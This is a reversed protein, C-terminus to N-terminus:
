GPEGLGRSGSATRPVTICLVACHCPHAASCIIPVCSLNSLCPRILQPRQAPKGAAHSSHDPGSAAPAVTVRLSARSALSLSSFRALWCALTHGRGSWRYWFGSSIVTANLAVQHHVQFPDDPISGHWHRLMEMQTRYLRALNFPQVRVAWRYPRGAAPLSLVQLAQGEPPQRVRVRVRDQLGVPHWHGHGDSFHAVRHALRNGSERRGPWPGPRLSVLGSAAQGPSM